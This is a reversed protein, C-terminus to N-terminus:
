PARQCGPFTKFTLMLKYGNRPVGLWEELGFAVVQQPFGTRRDLILRFKGETGPLLPNVKATAVQLTGPKEGPTITVALLKSAPILHRPLSFAFGLRLGRATDPSPLFPRAPSPSDQITWRGDIGTIRLFRSGTATEADRPGPPVLHIVFDQRGPNVLQYGLVTFAYSGVQINGNITGCWVTGQHRTATALVQEWTVSDAAYSFFPMGWLTFGMISCIWRRPQM